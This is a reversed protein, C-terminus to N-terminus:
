LAPGRNSWGRRLPVPSATTPDASTGLDPLTHPDHHWADSGQGRHWYSRRKGGKGKQRNAMVTQRYRYEWRLRRNRRPM